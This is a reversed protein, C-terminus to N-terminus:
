KAAENDEKIKLLAEAYGLLRTQSPRDLANFHEILMGADTMRDIVYWEQPNSRSGEAEIGSLLNEPSMDLAKCIIMIKEATPNTGKNRWDSITSQPIGTMKSFEKQTMSLEHLRDFIKDRIHM